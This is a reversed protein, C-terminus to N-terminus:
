LGSGFRLNAPDVKFGDMLFGHIKGLGAGRAPLVAVIVDGFHIYSCATCIGGSSRLQSSWHCAKRHCEGATCTCSNLLAGGRGEGGEGAQHPGSPKFERRTM